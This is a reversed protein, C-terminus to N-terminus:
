DDAEVKLESFKDTLILRYPYPQERMFGNRLLWNITDVSDAVAKGTKYQSYSLKKCQLSQRALFGALSGTNFPKGNLKILEGHNGRPIKGINLVVQNIIHEDM